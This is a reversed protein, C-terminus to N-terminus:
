KVVVSSSLIVVLRSLTVDLSSLSEDLGSLAVIFSSWSWSLSFISGELLTKSNTEAM